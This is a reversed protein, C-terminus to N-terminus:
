NQKSLLGDVCLWPPPPLLLPSRPPAPLLSLLLPILLSSLSYCSPSPHLFPSVTVAEPFLLTLLLCFLM